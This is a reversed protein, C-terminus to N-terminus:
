LRHVLHEIHTTSTASERRKTPNVLRERQKSGFCSSPTQTYNSPFVFEKPLEICRQCRSVSVNQQVQLEWVCVIRRFPAM